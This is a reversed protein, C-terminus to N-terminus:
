WIAPLVVSLTYYCYQGKGTFDGKKKFSELMVSGVTDESALFYFQKIRLATKGFEVSNVVASAFDKLITVTRVDLIVTSIKKKWLSKKQGSKWLM